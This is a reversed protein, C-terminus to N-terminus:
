ERTYMQKISKLVFVLREFQSVDDKWIKSSMTIILNRSEIEAVGMKDVNKPLIVQQYLDAIQTCIVPLKADSSDGLKAVVKYNAMRDGVDAEDDSISDTLGALHREDFPRLGEPSVEYTTDLEGNYRIQLLIENTFHVASLDLEGILGLEIPIALTSERHFM